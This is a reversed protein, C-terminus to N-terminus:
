HAALQLTPEVPRFDVTEADATVVEAVKALAVALARLNDDSLTGTQIMNVITAVMDDETPALKAARKEAENNIKVRLDAAAEREAEKAKAERKQKAEALQEATKAKPAFSALHSGMALMFQDAMDDAMAEAEAMSKGKATAPIGVTRLGVLYSAYVQYARKVEATPAADAARGFLANCAKATTGGYLVCQSELATLHTKNGGKPNLAIAYAHRIVARRVDFQVAQDGADARVFDVLSLSALAATKM